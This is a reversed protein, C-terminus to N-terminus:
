LLMRPGVSYLSAPLCSVFREQTATELTPGRHPTVNRRALVYKAPRTVRVRDWRHGGEDEHAAPTYLVRYKGTVDKWEKRVHDRPGEYVMGWNGFKRGGNGRLRQLLAKNVRPATWQEIKVITSRGDSIQQLHIQAGHMYYASRKRRDIKKGRYLAWDFYHVSTYEHDPEMFVDFFDQTISEHGGREERMNVTIRFRTRM